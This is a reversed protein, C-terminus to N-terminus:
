IQGCSLWVEAAIKLPATKKYEDYDPLFTTVKGLPKM